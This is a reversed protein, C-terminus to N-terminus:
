DLSFFTSCALVGALTLVDRAPLERVLPSQDNSVNLIVSITGVRSPVVASPLNEDTWDSLRPTWQRVAPGDTANPIRYLPITLECLPLKLARVPALVFQRSAM